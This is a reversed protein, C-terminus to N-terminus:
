LPPRVLNSMAPFHSFSISLVPCQITSLPRPRLNQVALPPFTGIAHVAADTDELVREVTKADTADGKVWNVQASRPIAAVRLFVFSTTLCLCAM